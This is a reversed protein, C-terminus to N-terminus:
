HDYTGRICSRWEKRDHAVHVARKVEIGSQELAGNIWNKRPRGRYRTNHAHAQLSIKPLRNGDMRLVHGLWTHQRHRVIDVTYGEARSTRTAVEQNTIHDKWTINLITRLCKMGFAQLKKLDTSNLTWTECGYLAIPIVLCDLLRLKTKLSIYRNRWIVRLYSMAALAQATRCRLDTSSSNQQTVTTGLYKFHCVQELKQNDINIAVDRSEKAVLMVKTKEKSIELGHKKSSQHVAELIDQADSVTEGMLDIDDAFRLNSVRQGNMLAGGEYTELAQALVHELFLNFLDPSLVCGQRVGVTQHFWDSIDCGFRVASVAQSYLNQILATLKRPINYHQMVKFMGTHWVRDFAKKFDIFVNVLEGNQVEMYREALQRWVFIQEVTSRGPRFGAQEESLNNEIHPKLRKRIIELLVKSAHVILTITRYNECLQLDGKKPLTVIISKTWIEPFEEQNWARQCINHMSHVAAEGGCQILEGCVGDVGPAKRLKLKKIAAEVESVTIDPEPEQQQGDWLNTLVTNEPKIDHNYLDSCYEGWRQRVDDENTLLRGDKSKITITKEPIRIGRTLEKIKKHLGLTQHTNQLQELQKCNDNCWTEYDSNIGDRIQHTLRNYTPKLSPETALKVKIKRRQDTLELTNDSIWPKRRSRTFGLVNDATTKIIASYAEAAQDLTLNMNTCSPLKNALEQQYKTLISQDKLKNIDHKKTSQGNTARNCKLKMRLKCMVLQHDSGVDASPFSRSDLICNKWRKNIIVFDIMNKSQGNPHSWTWKRSAKHQFYTNTICLQNACCFELLREGRENADGYGQNGITEGWTKQDTGVKANWDGMIILIDKNDINDIQQQLNDYFQEIENESCDATPAYVQIVSMNFGKGQFRAYILRHSIAQMNIMAQQAKKSLLLAVGGTHKSAHGAYIIDHGEVTKTGNGTWHTEALGIIDWKYRTIEHMFLETRGEQHLTRVNWTGININLKPALLQCRHLESKTQCHEANTVDLSLRGQPKLSDGDDTLHRNATMCAGERDREDILKRLPSSRQDAAQEGPRGAM